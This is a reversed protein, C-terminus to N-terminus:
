YEAVFTLYNKKNIVYAELKIFLLQWERGSVQIEM